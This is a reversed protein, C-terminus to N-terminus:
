HLCVRRRECFAAGNGFWDRQQRRHRTRDKRGVQRGYLNEQATLESGYTEFTGQRCESEGKRFQITYFHMSYLISACGALGPVLSILFLCGCVSAERFIPRGRAKQSSVASSAAM